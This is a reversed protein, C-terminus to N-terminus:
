RIRGAKSKHHARPQGSGLGCLITRTGTVAITAADRPNAAILKSIGTLIYRVLATDISRM